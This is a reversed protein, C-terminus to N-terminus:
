EKNTNKHFDVFDDEALVADHVGEHYHQSGYAQEPAEPLTLV